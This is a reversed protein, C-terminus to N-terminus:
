YREYENEEDDNSSNEVMRRKTESIAWDIRTELNGSIPLRFLQDKHKDLFHNGM